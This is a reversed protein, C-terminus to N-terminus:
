VLLWGGIGIGADVGGGGGGGGGCGCSCDCGRGSIIDPRCLYSYRSRYVTM